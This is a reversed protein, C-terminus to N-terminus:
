WRHISTRWYLLKVDILQQYSYKSSSGDYIENDVDLMFLCDMLKLAHKM